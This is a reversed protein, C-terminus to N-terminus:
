TDKEKGIERDTRQSNRMGYRRRVGELLIGGGGV